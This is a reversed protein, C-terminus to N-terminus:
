GTDKAVKRAARRRKTHHRWSARRIPRLAYGIHRLEDALNAYEDAHAPRTRRIVGHYEAGGHQGVHEYADCFWGNIDAPQEPFLAIIDGCDLWKRFVVVDAAM